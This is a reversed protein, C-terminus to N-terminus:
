DPATAAVAQAPGAGGTRGYLRSLAGLRACVEPTLQGEEYRWRWNGDPHAPTNMRGEPGLGLVDQLPYIAIKAVSSLAARIFDWHIERGDSNLYRMALEREARVQEAKMTTDKLGGHFWGLTTDNDHTGTYVVCNRIYNHPKFSDEPDDNCFAFQLVRMGPFDWRDRLAHVEDTILGLDEAVFPLKGLAKELASFLRDGPGEAWQGGIATASGAPISYYKEFGRFHDLRVMDVQDFLSRVREIWWRYGNREMVDWRYLPNGWLQGTASFYDPPVGAVSRPNGEPDLDFLEPNAWVDASDHAVFIPVDGMIQIGRERCYKRLADWQRSFVYQIFKQAEVDRPDARLDRPWSTWSVGRSNGKLAAFEAFRDLWAAKESCFREFDDRAPQSRHSFFNAAAKKLLAQKFPVVREFDVYRHPFDPAQRLDSPALWGEEVLGELSIMLPNGAMSSYCQYPSNGYGPPGLPLVQWLRQGSGSLFDAFRYASEGLSGIGHDGPLSTPHLIIGSIRM